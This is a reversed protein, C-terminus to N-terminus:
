GRPLCFVGCSRIACVVCPQWTNSGAGTHLNIVKVLFSLDSLMQTGDLKSCFVETFSFPPFLVFFYCRKDTLPALCHVYYGPPLRLVGIYSKSVPAVPPPCIFWCSYLQTCREQFTQRSMGLAKNCRKVAM